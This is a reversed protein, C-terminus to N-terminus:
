KEKKENKGKKGKGTFVHNDASFSDIENGCKMTSYIKEGNLYAELWWDAGAGFGLERDEELEFENCVVCEEGSQGASGSVTDLDIGHDKGLIFPKSGAPIDKLEGASGHRTFHWQESLFAVNSEQALAHTGSHCVGVVVTATMLKKKDRINM